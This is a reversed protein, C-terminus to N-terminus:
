SFCQCFGECGLVAERNGHESQTFRFYDGTSPFLRFYFSRSLQLLKESTPRANKSPGAHANAALVIINM